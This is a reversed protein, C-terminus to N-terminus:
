GARGRVNSCTAFRRPIRDSTSIQGSLNSGHIRDLHINYEVNMRDRRRRISEVAITALRVIVDDLRTHTIGTLM